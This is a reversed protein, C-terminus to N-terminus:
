QEQPFKGYRSLVDVFEKRGKNSMDVTMSGKETKTKIEGCGFCIYVVLEKGDKKWFIAYDPYFSGCFKGSTYPEFFESRSLLDQIRIVDSGSLNIPDEYFIYGDIEKAQNEPGDFIEDPQYLRQPAELLTFSTTRSLEEAVSLFSKHAEVDPIFLPTSATVYLAKSLIWFSLITSKM